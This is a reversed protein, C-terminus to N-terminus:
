RKWPGRFLVRLRNALTDPMREAHLRALAATTDALERRLMAQLRADEVAQRRAAELTTRDGEHDLLRASMERPTLPYRGAEPKGTAPSRGLISLLSVL